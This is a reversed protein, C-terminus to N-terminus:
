TFPFAGLLGDQGPAKGRGVRRLRPGLPGELTASNATIQKVSTNPVQETQVSPTQTRPRNKENLLYATGAECQARTPFM